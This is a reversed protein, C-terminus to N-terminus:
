KQVHDFKLHSGEEDNEAVFDIEKIIHHSKPMKRNIVLGAIGRFAHPIFMFVTAMSKLKIFFIMSLLFAGLEILSVWYILAHLEFMVIELKM